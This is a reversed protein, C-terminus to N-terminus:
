KEVTKRGRKMPDVKIKADKFQTKFEQGNTYEHLFIATAAVESHPQNGIAINYNVLQFVEGPVKEGGVILLLNDKKAKIENIKETMNPAFMTLHVKTGKFDKIIKKWNKDYTIELGGGWRKSVDAVSELIKDDKEGSLIVKKAGFARATLAVHTTIRMDRFRRHGLRLVTIM